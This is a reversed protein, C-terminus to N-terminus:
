QPQLDILAVDEGDLTLQAKGDKWVVRGGRVLEPSDAGAPSLGELTIIVTRPQPSDNFVTLYRQGFRELYVKEDSSRALTIPEWGAEAVRKCLPVYKKFLPRDREYLEPRRFYHGESANHSFFGPFMGYALCRKMYKEVLEPGFREFETNMLFCYPKGKSMARRYLLDADSMPRWRGGPNWNTETGLVQLMPCLWCLRTPAGNAMMLKGMGHVDKAIARVYEFAVLGRFIAPRHTHICFVLPTDAAAFHERRFNLEDTVYGESSDIYEGDLDGKRGPGYLQGILKQNWKNKFDTVEGPVGPMSNMSWVAGNCWPTDLLRAPFRGMRDHFGSTLLAQAQRNGQEALRNAEALAAEMTRPMDKPMPMWWTMPETYRFTLIGHADDWATEDNGEKFKFGFDQWDKVQSIKAFPMWLGQEPTGSRFAEPFLEYYRALAGRFGWRADFRFLCFRVTASPKEPALGIDYALFLEETAANYGIRYFAPRAMDIGLAVGSRRDPWPEQAAGLPYLSLQGTSGCGFRTAHVYERPPSVETQSRPDQLWVAPRRVTESRGGPSPLPREAERPVYVSYLLTVARDTGTTDTLTAEFFTAHTSETRKYQLKLGLAQRQIRVFHSNAAVDRVQFGAGGAAASAVIRVPVGAFLCAGEPAAIVHLQPQRFYAKGGHRRFLMYFTLSKVPKEPVVIVRRQQWDHTGTDFVAAQGWLPTGDQYMLDLYLSYDNDASGTVGEAKSSAIAVIPQPTKQDLVVHQMVGRRAGPQNGNDCVFVDGAPQFGQEYGRWRDPRLLNPGLNETGLVAKVPQGDRLTTPDADHAGFGAVVGAQCLLAMLAGLLRVLKPGHDFRRHNM